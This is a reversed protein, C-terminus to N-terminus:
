ALNKLATFVSPPRSIAVGFPTTSSIRTCPTVIGCTLDCKCFYLNCSCCILLSVDFARDLAKLAPSLLKKVDVNAPNGGIIALSSLTKAM